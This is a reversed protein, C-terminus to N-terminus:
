KGILDMYKFKTRSSLGPKKEPSALKEFIPKFQEKLEKGFHSFIIVINETIEEVEKQKEANEVIELIHALLDETIKFLNSQQFSEYAGTKAIDCLLNTINKRTNNNASFECFADYDINQDVDVINQMTTLYTALRSEFLEKFESAYKNCLRTLVKAYIKSFMKNSTCIKYVTDFVQQMKDTIECDDGFDIADRIEEIKSIILEIMDDCNEEKIKNLSIRIENIKNQTEDSQGFVTAKFVPRKWEDKSEKPKKYTRERVEKEKPKKHQQTTTVPTSNYQNIYTNPTKEVYGVLRCLARISSLVSEQLDCKGINEFETLSYAM